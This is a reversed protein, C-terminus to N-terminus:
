KEMSAALAAYQYDLQKLALEYNMKAEVEQIMSDAVFQASAQDRAYGAQIIADAIKDRASQEELTAANIANRMATNEQVRSTESYGSLPNEYLNGSLGRAALAENNGIANLRANVYAEGRNADYQKKLDEAQSLYEAKTQNYAAELAKDYADRAAQYSSSSNYNSGSGGGGNYDWTLTNTSKKSSGSSKKGPSSSNLQWFLDEQGNQQYNLLEAALNESNSNTTPRANGSYLGYTNNYASFKNSLESAVSSRSPTRTESLGTNAKGGSIIKTGSAVRGM